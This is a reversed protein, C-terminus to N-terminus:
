ITSGNKIKLHLLGNKINIKLNFIGSTKLIANNINFKIIKTYNSKFLIFDLYFKITFNKLYLFHM